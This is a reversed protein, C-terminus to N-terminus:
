AANGNVLSAHRSASASSTISYPSRQQSQERGTKVSATSFTPVVADSRL